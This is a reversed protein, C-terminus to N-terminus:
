LFFFSFLATFLLKSIQLHNCVQCADFDIKAAVGPTNFLDEDEVIIAVKWDQGNVLATLPLTAFVHGVPEFKFRGLVFFCSV